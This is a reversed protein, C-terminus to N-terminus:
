GDTGTTEAEVDSSPRMGYFRNDFRILSRGATVRGHSAVQRGIAWVDERQAVDCVIGSVIYLVGDEPGPLDIIKRETQIVRPIIFSGRDYVVNQVVMDDVPIPKSVVRARGRSQFSASLGEENMLRILHGTLNVIRNVVEERNRPNRWGESEM